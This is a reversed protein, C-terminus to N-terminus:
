TGNAKEETRSTLEETMEELLFRKVARILTVPEYPKRFITKVGLEEKAMMIPDFPNKPDFDYGTFWFVEIRRDKGWLNENQRVLRTLTIGDMVPMSLDLIIADVNYKLDNLFELASPGGKRIAIVTDEIEAVLEYIPVMDLDDDVIMIRRKTESM